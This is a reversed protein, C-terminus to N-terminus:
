INCDISQKVGQISDEQNINKALIDQRGYSFAGRHEEM